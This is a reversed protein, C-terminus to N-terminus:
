FHIETAQTFIYKDSIEKMPNKRTVGSSHYGPLHQGSNQYYAMKKGKLPAQYKKAQLNKYKSQDLYNKGPRHYFSKNHLNM